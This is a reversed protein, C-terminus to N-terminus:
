IWGFHVCANYIGDQDAADTVYDAAQKAVEDGNGVAIGIGAAQLIDCDIPGDGFAVTNCHPIGRREAEALMALSKLAAKGTINVVGYGVANVRLQPAFNQLTQAQEDTLYTVIRVLPEKNWVRWQPCTGFIDVMDQCKKPTPPTLFYSEEETQWRLPINELQLVRLVKEMYDPPPLVLRVTQGEVITQAGGTYICGDLPCAQLQERVNDMESTSRGTCAYVLHGNKKLLTIARLASAPVEWTKHVLLTEDIDFFFIHKDQM